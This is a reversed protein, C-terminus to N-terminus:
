LDRGETAQPDQGTRKGIQVFQQKVQHLLKDQYQSVRRREKSNRAHGDPWIYPCPMHPVLGFDRCIQPREDYIMCQRTERHLFVCFGDETEPVLHGDELDLVRLVKVQAKSENREAILRPIPVLGCCDGCKERCVFGSM